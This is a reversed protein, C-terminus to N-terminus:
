NAVNTPGQASQAFHMLLAATQEDLPALLTRVRDVLDRLRVLEDETAGVREAVTYPEARRNLTGKLARILRLVEQAPPSPRRETDARPASARAEELAGEVRM